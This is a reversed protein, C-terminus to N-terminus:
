GGGLKTRLFSEIDQGLNSTISVRNSLQPFRERFERIIAEPDPLTSRPILYKIVRQYYEDADKRVGFNPNGSRGSEYAYSLAEIILVELKQYEEPITNASM